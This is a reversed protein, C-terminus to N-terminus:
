TKTIKKSFIFSEGFDTLCLYKKSQKIYSKESLFMELQLKYYNWDKLGTEFDDQPIPYFWDVMLFTVPIGGSFCFASSIKDPIEFIRIFNKDRTIKNVEGEM